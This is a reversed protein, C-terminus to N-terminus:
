ASSQNNLCQTQLLLLGILLFQVADLDFQLQMWLVEYACGEKRICQETRSDPLLVSFAHYQRRNQDYVSKSQDVAVATSALHM